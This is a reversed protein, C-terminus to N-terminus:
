FRVSVLHAALSNANSSIFRVRLTYFTEIDSSANFAIEFRTPENPAIELPPSLPVIPFRAHRRQQAHLTTLDFDYRHSVEIVAGGLGEGADGQSEAFDVVAIEVGSLVATGQGRNTVTVDFIPNLRDSLAEAGRERTVRVQAFVTDDCPLRYFSHPSLEFQSLVLDGETRTPLLGKLSAGAGLVTAVVALTGVLVLCGAGVPHDAFRRRARDYLTPSGQQESM